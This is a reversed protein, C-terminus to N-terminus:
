FQFINKWLFDMQPNDEVMLHIKEEEKELHYKKFISSFASDYNQFHLHMNIIIM